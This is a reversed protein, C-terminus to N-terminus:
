RQGEIHTKIIRTNGCECDHEEISLTTVRGTIRRSGGVYESPDVDITVHMDMDMLSGLQMTDRVATPVPGDGNIVVEARGPATPAPCNAQTAILHLDKDWLSVTSM